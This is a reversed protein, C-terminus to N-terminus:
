ATKRVLLGVGEPYTTRCWRVKSTIEPPVTAPDAVPLFGFSGYFPELHAFPVCYLAPYPSRQLLDAVIASAIGQGRFEPFVTIGGLEGVGPAVPVLRGLGVPTDDSEAVIVLDDATSPMFGIDAYRANAWDLEGPLLPRLTIM